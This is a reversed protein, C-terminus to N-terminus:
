VTARIFLAHLKESEKLSKKIESLTYDDSIKQELFEEREKYLDYTSDFFLKNEEISGVEGYCTVDGDIFLESDPHIRVELDKPNKKLEEILESVKM